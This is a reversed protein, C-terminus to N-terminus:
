RLCASPTRNISWSEGRGPRQRDGGNYNTFIRLLAKSVTTATIAVKIGTRHQSDAAFLRQRVGFAEQVVEDLVDSDYKNDSLWWTFWDIVKHLM